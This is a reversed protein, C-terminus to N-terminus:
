THADSPDSPLVASLNGSLAPSSAQKTMLEEPLARCMRRELEAAVTTYGGLRIIAQHLDWRGAAPVACASQPTMSPTFINDWALVSPKGPLM